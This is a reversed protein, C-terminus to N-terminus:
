SLGGILQLSLRGLAADSTHGGTALADAPVAIRDAVRVAREREAHFQTALVHDVGPTKEALAYVDSLALDVGLERQDFHFFGGVEHGFAALLARQVPAQQFQPLLTVTLALRVPWARHDRIRLREPEGCRASLFALLAEKQPTSLGNGGAAACTIAIVRRAAAGRGEREVSAHAKAIGAFTLALDAHDALSVARELTRVRLRAQQRAQEPAERDAGGSAPAPNLTRELFAASQPMKHIGLAAVNAGTGLGTRYRAVINNRGSPPAAGNRGDGFVVSARERDDVEILLHRDLPGSDALTEVRTWREGGVFIEVAPAVGRPSAADPLWALPSRRLEFRQPAATPDGGGLTEDPGGAGHTVQAVNGYVVADGLDYAFDLPRSLAIRVRGALPQVQAIRAGEAHQTDAIVLDLGAALGLPTGAIDLQSAGAALTGEAHDFGAVRMRHAFGGYVSLTAVRMRAPARGALTLRTRGEVSDAQTIEHASFLRGDGLAVPTGISFADVSKDLTLVTHEGVHAGRLEGLLVQRLASQRATASDPTVSHFRITAYHDFANRVPRLARTLPEALMIYPGSVQAVTAIETGSADVILLLDGPLPSRTFNRERPLSADGPRIVGGWRGCFTGRLVRTASRRLSAPVGRSLMISGAPSEAAIVSKAVVTAAFQLGDSEVLVAGGRAFQRANLVPLQNQGLKIEDARASAALRATQQPKGHLTLDAILLSHDQAPAGLAWSLQTAGNLESMAALPLATLTQGNDFVIPVGAKLGGYLGNLLVRADQPASAANRLRLLRGSRNHGVLRMLNRSPDVQLATTTEFVLPPTNPAGQANLKFGAPLEGPKGPKAFFAQLASASAGSGLRYDVLQALDILSRTLTATRLFSENARQDVYAHLIAAMHAFLQALLVGHDASNAGDQALAPNWGPLAQPLRALLRERLSALDDAAYDIRALGPRNTATVPLTTFDAPM